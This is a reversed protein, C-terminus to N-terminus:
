PYITLLRQALDSKARAVFQHYNSQQNYSKWAFKNASDILIASSACFSEAFVLFETMENPFLFVKRGEIDWRGTKQQCVASQSKWYIVLFRLDSSNSLFAKNILWSILNSQRRMHLLKLNFELTLALSTIRLPKKHFDLINRKTHHILGTPFPLHVPALGKNIAWSASCSTALGNIVSCVHSRHNVLDSGEFIQVELFGLKSPASFLESNIAFSLTQITKSIM